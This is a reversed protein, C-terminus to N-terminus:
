TAGRGDTVSRIRAQAPLAEFSAIVPVGLLKPIQSESSLTNDNYEAFFPAALALLIAAALAVASYLMRRPRLARLPLPAADVIHVEVMQAGAMGETVRAQEQNRIYLLYAEEQAKTTRELSGVSARSAGIRRRFRGLASM